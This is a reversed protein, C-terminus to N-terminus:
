KTQTVETQYHCPCQGSKQVVNEVTYWLTVKETNSDHKPHRGEQSTRPRCPLVEENVACANGEVDDARGAVKSKM